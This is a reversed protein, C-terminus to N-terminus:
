GSGAAAAPPAPAPPAAAPSRPSGRHASAGPRTTIVPHGALGRPDGDGNVRRGPACVHDGGDRGPPDARRHRGVALATRLFGTFAAPKGARAEAAAQRAQVRPRLDAKVQACPGAEWATLLEAIEELPPGLHKAEGIFAPRAVAEPGCARYGAATRGAPLLGTGKYLRLTTAPVGDLRSPERGPIDYRRDRRDDQLHSCLRSLSGSIFGRSFVIAM